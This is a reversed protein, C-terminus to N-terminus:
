LPTPSSSRRVRRRRPRAPPVVAGPTTGTRRLDRDVRRCDAEGTVFRLDTERVETIRGDARLRPLPLPPDARTSLVLHLWEPLHGALVGIASRLDADTLLHLDDLVLWSEPASTAALDNILPTLCSDAPGRGGRRRLEVLERDGVPGALRQLAAILHPWLRGPDNDQGDISLWSWPAELESLWGALLTTKGFGAPASVLTVPTSSAEALRRHLRERRVYGPRPVPPLFKTALLVSGPPRGRVQGSVRRFELEAARRMM